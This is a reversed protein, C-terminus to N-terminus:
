STLKRVLEIPEEIISLAALIGAGLKKRLEHHDGDPHVDLAPVAYAYGERSFVIGWFVELGDPPVDLVEDLSPVKVRRDDELAAIALDIEQHSVSTRLGMQDAVSKPIRAM